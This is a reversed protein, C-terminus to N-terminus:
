WDGIDTVPDFRLREWNAFSSLDLLIDLGNKILILLFLFTVSNVM